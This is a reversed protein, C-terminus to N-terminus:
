AELHISDEPLYGVADESHKLDVWRYDSNSLGYLIEFQVSDPARLCCEVLRVMDNKTSANPLVAQPVQDKSHIGGMRICICSLDTTSSYMRALAEGFVKSSGYFNVPWTPATVSIHDYSEPVNKYDMEYISKYPEMNRFYGFSVQISSAYIVRGIGSAKAAEFLHQTAEINNKLTSEWAAQDDPDAAMHVITNIGKFQKKLEGENSLDSLIFRDEPVETFEDPHLRSSREKNRDLGYVDYWDPKASLHRYICSGVLGYVGTILISQKQM